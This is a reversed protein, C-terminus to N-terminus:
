PGGFGDLLVDLLAEGVGAAVVVFAASTVVAVEAEREVPDDAHGAHCFLEGGEGQSFWV